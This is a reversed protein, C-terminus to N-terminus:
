KRPCPPVVNLAVVKTKMIKRIREPIELVKCDQKIPWEQEPKELFAPGKQWISNCGIEVPDRPRTVYDAM